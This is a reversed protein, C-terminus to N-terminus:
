DLDDSPYSMYLWGPKGGRPERAKRWRSFIYQGLETERHKILGALEPSVNLDEVSDDHVDCTFISEEDFGAFRLLEKIEAGTYERNHRGYPGHGSYPDYPNSGDVLRMVNVLRAVNPTTLILFGDLKLVRWIERLAHLPDMQLHEIVECFLVGEFRGDDFPFRDAEINLNAFDFRHEELAGSPARVSVTQAATGGSIAFFNSYALELDPRFWRLLLSIFYPNAGIELLSGSGPPILDVTRIFRECDAEAYQHLDSPDGGDISLTRLAELIAPKPVGGLVPLPARLARMVIRKPPDALLRSLRRRSRRWLRALPRLGTL